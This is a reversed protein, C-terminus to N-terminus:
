IMKPNRCEFNAQTKILYTKIGEPGINWRLYEAESQHFEYKSPKVMMGSGRIAELINGVDTQHPQLTNSYILVNDLYVISCM